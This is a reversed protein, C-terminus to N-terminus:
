YQLSRIIKDSMMLFEEESMKINNIRIEYILGGKTFAVINGLNRAKGNHRKIVGISDKNVLKIERVVSSGPLDKMEKAEEYKLLSDISPLDNKFNSPKFVSIELVASSDIPNLYAVFKYEDEDDLIPEIRKQVWKDPILLKFSGNYFSRYSLGRDGHCGLLLYLCLIMLIHPGKIGM